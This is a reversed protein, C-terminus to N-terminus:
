DSKLFNNAGFVREPEPRLVPEPEESRRLMVVYGGDPAMSFGVPEWGEKALEGLRLLVHEQEVDRVFDYAYPM